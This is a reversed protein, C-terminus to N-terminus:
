LDIVGGEFGASDEHPLSKGHTSIRARVQKTGGDCLSYSARQPGVSINQNWHVGCPRQQLKHQDELAMPLALAEATVGERQESVHTEVRHFEGLLDPM